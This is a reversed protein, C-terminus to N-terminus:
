ILLQVVILLLLILFIIIVPITSFKFQWDTFNPIIRTKKLDEIKDKEVIGSDLNRFVFFIVLVIVIVILLEFLIM